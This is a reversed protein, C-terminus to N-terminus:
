HKALWSKVYDAVEEWGEQQVIYHCRGRFLKFETPSPAEEYLEYNSYNLSAPIIHDEEGAILLLPAVKQKTAIEAIDRTPGNGVRRSEPVAFADYVAASVNEPVCESFAYRFADPDPLYPEDEDAFPSIVAWNSRLFSLKLSITGKPPASDIAVGAVGHGGALLIQTILGGMSHGILIPKEPLQSIFTRYSDVVDKLELAGLKKDPHSARLQSPPADHLPWAPAHVKYGAAEFYGKWEAWSAPTLFMGHILVITKTKAAAPPVAPGQSAHDPTTCAALTALLLASLFHRM